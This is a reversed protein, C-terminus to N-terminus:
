ARGGGAPQGAAAPLIRGPAAYAQMAPVLQRAYFEPNFHRFIDYADVVRQLAAFDLETVVAEAADPSSSAALIGVQDPTMECPALIASPGCLEEAALRGVLCPELGFVQNAQVERWLAGLHEEASLASREGPHILINAGQLCLIRAVEPYYLDAGVIFGIRGLPTPFVSLTDARTLDWVRDRPSRHTQAQAGAIKGDPGFLFAVHYVREGAVVYSTGSALYIGHREALQGCATEYAQRLGGRTARTLELPNVRLDGVDAQLLCLGTHAPLAVLQAGRRVAPAIAQDLRSQFDAISDSRFLALQLAAAKPM